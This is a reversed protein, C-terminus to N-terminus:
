SGLPSPSRQPNWQEWLRREGDAYAADSLSRAVLFVEDIFSPEM